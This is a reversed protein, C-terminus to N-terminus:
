IMGAMSWGWGARFSVEGAALSEGSELGSGPGVGPVWEEGFGDRESLMGWSGSRCPLVGLVLSIGCGVFDRCFGPQCRSLVREHGSCSVM